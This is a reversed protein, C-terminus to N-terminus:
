AAKAEPQPEPDGPIPATGDLLLKAIVDHWQAALDLDPEEDQKTFAHWYPRLAGPQRGIEGLAAELTMCRRRAAHLESLLGAVGPTVALLAGVAERVAYQARDDDQDILEIARRCLDRERQIENFAARKEDVLHQLATASPQAQAGMARRLASKADNSSQQAEQLAAEAALLDRSAADVNVQVAALGSRASDLFAEVDARRALAAALAAREPETVM